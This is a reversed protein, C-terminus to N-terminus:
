SVTRYQAAALYLLPEISMPQSWGTEVLWARDSVTFWAGYVFLPQDPNADGDATFGQGGPVQPVAFLAASEAHEGGGPLAKAYGIEFRVFTRAEAASGFTYGASEIFHSGNTWTVARGDKFGDRRLESLVSTAPVVTSQAATSLNMSGTDARDTRYGHGPDPIFHYAAESTLAAVTAWAAVALLLASVVWFPWASRQLLSRSRRPPTM